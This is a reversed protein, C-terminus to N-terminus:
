TLLYSLRFPLTNIPQRKHWLLLAQISLYTTVSHLFHVCMTTPPVTDLLLTCRKGNVSGHLHLVVGVDDAALAGVGGLVAQPTRPQAFGEEDMRKLVSPCQAESHGKGHCRPCKMDWNLVERGRPVGRHAVAGVAARGARSSAPTVVRAVVAVAGAAM